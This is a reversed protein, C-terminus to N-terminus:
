PWISEHFEVGENVAGLRRVGIRAGGLVEVLEVVLKPVHCLDHGLVDFIQQIPPVAELAHALHARPQPVVTLFIALRSDFDIPIQQDLLVSGYTDKAHDDHQKYPEAEESIGLRFLPRPLCSPVPKFRHTSTPGTVAFLRRNYILFIGLLPIHHLILVHEFRDVLAIGGLSYM